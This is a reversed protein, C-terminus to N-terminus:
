LGKVLVVSTEIQREPIRWYLRLLREKEATTTLDFGHKQYFEIAWVAAAWTGVLVPKESRALLDRILASGVGRRQRCTRVYAHRILLVHSVPQAGIVGILGEAADFWGRFAVGASIEGSLEEAGMYPEHWCDEPIIGRYAEAAENIVAHLEDFDADVCDAIM